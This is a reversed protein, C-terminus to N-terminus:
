HYGITKKNLVVVKPRLRLNNGDIHRHRLKGNNMKDKDMKKHNVFTRREGNGRRRPRKDMAVAAPAQVQDNDAKRRWAEKDEM